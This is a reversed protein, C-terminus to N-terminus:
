SYFKTGIATDIKVQAEVGIDFEDELADRYHLGTVDIALSVVLLSFDFAVHINVLVARLELLVRDFLCLTLTYRKMRHCAVDMCL